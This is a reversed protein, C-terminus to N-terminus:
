CRIIAWALQCVGILTLTLVQNNVWALPVGLALARKESQSLADDILSLEASDQAFLRFHVQLPLTCIEESLKVDESLQAFSVAAATLSKREM